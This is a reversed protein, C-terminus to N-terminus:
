KKSKKSMLDKAIYQDVEDPIFGKKFLPTIIEKIEDYSKGDTEINYILIKLEKDPTMVFTKYWTPKDEFWSNNEVVKIANKLSREYDDISYVNLHKETNKWHNRLMEIRKETSPNENIIQEVTKQLSRNLADKSKLLENKQEYYKPNVDPINTLFRKPLGTGEWIKTVFDKEEAEPLQKELAAYDGSAALLAADFLYMPLSTTLNNEYNGIAAKVAKDMRAPSLLGEDTIPDIVGIKAIYKYFKGVDPDDIGELYDRTTEEGKVVQQKRYYDFNANYILFANLSPISSLLGGQFPQAAIMDDKMREKVYDMPKITKGKTVHHMAYVEASNILPLLIGPKKLRIFYTDPNKPDRYRNPIHWYGYKEYESMRNYKDIYEDKDDDDLLMYALITALTGYTVLETAKFAYNWPNKKFNEV